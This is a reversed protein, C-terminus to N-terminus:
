VQMRMVEQYAETLRNRVELILRFNLDAQAMALTVTHLGEVKGTAMGQMAQDARAGSTAEGALLDGLMQTFARGGSGAAEKADTPAISPPHAMAARSIADIAM